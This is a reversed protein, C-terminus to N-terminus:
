ILKVCHFRSYQYDRTFFAAFKAGKSKLIKKIIGKLRHDNDEAIANYIDKSSVVDKRDQTIEIKDNLKDMLEEMKETSFTIGYRSYSSLDVEHEPEM